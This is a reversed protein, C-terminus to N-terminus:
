ELINIGTKHRIVEPRWGNEFDADPLMAIFKVEMPGIGILSTDIRAVYNESDVRILDPKAFKQSVRPKTCVEVAFDYDDMTLGEIPDVHINYKFKTGLYKDESM